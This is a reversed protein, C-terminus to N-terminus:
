SWTAITEFCKQLLKGSTKAELVGWNPNKEKLGPHNDAMNSPNKYLIAYPHGIGIAEPLIQWHYYMTQFQLPQVLTTSTPSLTIRVPHYNSPLFEFDSILIQLPTILSEVDKLSAVLSEGFFLVGSFVKPWNVFRFWPKKLFFHTKKGSTPRFCRNKLNKVYFDGRPRGMIEWGLVDEALNSPLTFPTAAPHACEKTGQFRYCFFHPSKKKAGM